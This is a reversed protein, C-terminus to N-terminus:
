LHVIPNILEAQNAVNSSAAIIRLINIGGGILINISVRLISIEFDCILFQCLM